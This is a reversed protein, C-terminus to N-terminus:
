YVLIMWISVTIIWLRFFTPSLPRHFNTADQAILIKGRVLLLDLLDAFMRVPDDETRLTVLPNRVPGALPFSLVGEITM